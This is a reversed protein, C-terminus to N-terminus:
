VKDSEESHIARDRLAGDTQEYKGSRLAKIWINYVEEPTRNVIKM